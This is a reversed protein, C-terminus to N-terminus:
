SFPIRWSLVFVNALQLARPGIPSSWIKAAVQNIAPEVVCGNALVCHYYWSSTINHNGKFSVVWTVPKQVAMHLDVLQLSHSGDHLLVRIVVEM